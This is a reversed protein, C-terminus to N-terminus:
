PLWATMVSGGPPEWGVKASPVTTDMGVDEEPNKKPYGVVAYVHSYEAATKGWARLGCHWGISTLLACILSTHDDCNHVVLDTEPLYFRHSETEIDFTPESEAETISKVRAYAHEGRQGVSLLRPTVRYIPNRGLGGHQDVRRLHTSVGLMRYLVRVQLALEESITGFVHNRNDADANLGTLLSKVTALDYDLSPVHKNKAGRGCRSMEHALEASNIAIYREHWRTQIGLAECIEAVRKKQSEKPHGDRGSISFRTTTGRSYDVWGYAVHVGLLWAMDPTLNGRGSPLAEPTLLDDGPKLDRARVEEAASRDGFSGKTSKPVRFVKHDLTCRLVGGNSLDFELIDQVGKDWKNTIRTWAGDGMIITGPEADVIPILKYGDGLLKTDAPLCDGGGAGRAVMQLLRNPHMFLDTDRPDAVYRVNRKVWAYVKELECDDDRSDCGNTIKRAAAIVLPHTSDELAIQALEELAGRQTALEFTRSRLARM